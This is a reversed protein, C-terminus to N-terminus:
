MRKCMEDILLKALADMKKILLKDEKSWEKGQIRRLYEKRISFIEEYEECLRLYPLETLEMFEGSLSSEEKENQCATCLTSKDPYCSSDIEKGCGGCFVYVSVNAQSSM